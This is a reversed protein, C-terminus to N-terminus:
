AAVQRGHCTDALGCLEDIALSRWSAQPGGKQQIMVCSAPHLMRPFYKWAGDMSEGGLDNSILALDVNALNNSARAVGSTPDGPTLKAQVGFGGLLRHAEKLSLGQEAPPRGEFADVAAYKIRVKSNARQAVSLLNLTRRGDGVGVELISVPRVNAVLRYLVRENAPQSLWALYWYKMLSAAAM